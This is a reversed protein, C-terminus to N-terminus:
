KTEEVPSSATADGKGDKSRRALEARFERPYQSEFDYTLRRGMWSVLVAERTVEAVVARGLRDGVGVVTGDVVARRTSAAVMLVGIRLEPPDAGTWRALDISTEGIPAPPPELEELLAFALGVSQHLDYSGFVALLDRGNADSEVTESSQPEPGAFLDAIAGAAAGGAGASGNGFFAFTAIGASAVLFLVAVATSKSRTQQRVRKM